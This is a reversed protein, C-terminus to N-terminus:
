KEAENHPTAKEELAKLLVTHTVNGIIILIIMIFIAGAYAILSAIPNGSSILNMSAISNIVPLFYLMGAFLASYVAIGISVKCLTSSTKKKIIGIIAIATTIICLIICITGCVAVFTDIGTEMKEFTPTLLSEELSHLDTTNTTYNLEM